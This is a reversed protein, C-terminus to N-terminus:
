WSAELRLALTRGPQPFGRADRVSADGLNKGSLSLLLAKPQVRWAFPSLQALDVAASANWVTRASVTSLGSFSVPIESTYQMEGVLKFLQSPPGLQVRLTVEDEARGPLAGGGQELLLDLPPRDLDTDLHTWNASLDVWGLVGLEGALEVGRIRAPGTNTAAIISPAVQQFVISEDIDSQFFAVELRLDRLPGLEAIGLEIGVDANRAQEPELGPNGRIFGKNPFYLEDFNPVRYSEEWNAKLRLGTVPAVIVGVRPLWESGFGETHDFRLAPIVALRGDLVEIEDQASAGGVWRATDAFENSRLADRRLEGHLSAGHHMGWLGAEGEVSVRGGSALNRNSSDIPSGVRPDPDRFRVRETRQFGRLEVGVAGGALDDLLLRLDAVNRTRWEHADASQQGVAGRGTDLGPQGRSAFYLSDNAELRLGEWPSAALRLLGAHSEVANNIRELEQSESTVGADGRVEATQFHFDGDSTFGQYGATLEGGPIAAIRRTHSLSGQWTGFSGAGLTVRTEPEPGPRRPVLNVVGGVADSGVQVSGGGRSVEIRELLELPVTSLDVTGSQATNLRVGDLLVVVQQPTSGRISVESPQGPGGFRRVQVGVSRSLQEEASTQEGATEATEIVSTFSSPDEPLEAMRVATVRAAPARARGTEADQGVDGAGRVPGSLAIAFVISM